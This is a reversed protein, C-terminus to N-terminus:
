SKLIRNVEKQIDSYNYGANEIKKKRTAGNGWLGKIVEKAIDTINSNTSTDENDYKVAIFGRIYKGDINLKRIGVADSKNGEIVEFTKKNVKYVIGVHDASGTNDGKGNDGWDYMVLWGVSPTVSDDEIWIKKSKALNIMRNCSCEYPFSTDSGGSALYAMASVFGACWSDTIKLKYGQPLPTINNYLKVIQKHKNSGEKTGIYSKCKNIYENVKM